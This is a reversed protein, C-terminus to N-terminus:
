STCRVLVGKQGFVRKLVECCEQLGLRQNRLHQCAAHLRQLWIDSCLQVWLEVLQHCCHLGHSGQLWVCGQCRTHLRALLVDERWLKARPATLGRSAAQLPRNRSTLQHLKCPSRRCAGDRVVQSEPGASRKRAVRAGSRGAICGPRKRVKPRVLLLAADNTQRGVM